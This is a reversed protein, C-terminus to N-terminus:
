VANRMQTSIFAVGRHQYCSTCETHNGLTETHDSTLTEMYAVRGSCREFREWNAMGKLYVKAPSYLASDRRTLNSKVLTHSRLSIGLAKRWGIETIKPVLVM